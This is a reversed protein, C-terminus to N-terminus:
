IHILSLNKVINNIFSENNPLVCENKDSWDTQASISLSFIILPLFKTM